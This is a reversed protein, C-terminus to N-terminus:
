WTFGLCEAVSVVKCAPGFGGRTDAAFRAALLNAIPDISLPANQALQPLRHIHLSIDERRVDFDDGALIHAPTMAQQTNAHRSLHFRRQMLQNHWVVTMQSNEDTAVDIPGLYFRPTLSM